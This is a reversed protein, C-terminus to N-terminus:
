PGHRRVMLMVADSQIGHWTVVGHERMKDLWWAAPKVTLHLQQNILAGALDPVTSIQFFVNAANAFINTLVADVDAPPIHELVDTCFGWTAPGAVFPKTLDARIFPLDRAAEDRCDEVFDVLLPDCGAAQLKLAGRGTGCGFDVVVGSPRAVNLFTQAVQEGPALERYAPLQWMRAYKEYETLVERPANWMDPLLGSGHVHLTVGLAELERATEQFREAQLKMTLSAVYERGNFNVHAMPDGANLPQAFAHTQGERNSSDYGYLHMTRYGMAYALCIATNGVSAAGGILCYDDDYDPLLHDIGSVQLQWLLADPKAAFLAPHVQSAFLHERAPGVLDLTELRADLVVQYRPFITNDALFRAAGNLAFVDGSSVWHKRVDALTDRLSPGSGCIVAVREHPEEARVWKHGNHSNTHINAYLQSDDTNCVVNIPLVLPATAGPNWHEMKLNHYPLRM